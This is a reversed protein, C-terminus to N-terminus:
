SVSVNMVLEDGFATLRQQKDAPLDYYFINWNIPYGDYKVYVFGSGDPLWAPSIHDKNNEVLLQSEGGGRTLYTNYKIPSFTTDCFQYQEDVPSWELNSALPGGPTLEEGITTSGLADITRLGQLTYSIESGDNKWSLEWLVFERLFKVCIDGDLTLTGLDVISDTVVATPFDYELGM